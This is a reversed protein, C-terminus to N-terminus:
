LLYGRIKFKNEQGYVGHVGFSFRRFSELEQLFGYMFNKAKMFDTLEERDYNILWLSYGNNDFCKWFFDLADNKDKLFWKKFIVLNFKSPPLLDLPNGSSEQQIRQNREIVLSEDSSSNEFFSDESDEMEIFNPIM